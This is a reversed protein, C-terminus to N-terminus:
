AYCYGDQRHIPKCYKHNIIQLRGTATSIDFLGTARVTVRGIYTGANKGKLVVARVMDGTQFGHVVKVRSRVALEGKKNVQPFGFKTINCMRRHGYGTAKILMPKTVKVIVQEPTSSGVAVADGWHTKPRGLRTRNFKTQGGTGTEVPLGVAKLQEFLAWRTTNVAAAHALPKKVQALVRKLIDPKGSLFDKIDQNGKTQNCPHCAITLNSVRNSGGKSRPVVHEIELRTDTAGCYVCRRDFKTLLYERVEYGALEGQQYMVGSIEPNSIKQLDFRVLEQSIATVPCVSLLRRVWTLTNEVRSKLSPPLWGKSRCRNDFRAARYRTKRKRRSRRLQRRTTLADRVEYGRHTLEAAWVVVNGQVIALGTTKAGPDIKLRYESTTSNEVETDHLIITFPYRRFVSARGSKLLCRARAPHTLDLPKRNKDLVFVFM